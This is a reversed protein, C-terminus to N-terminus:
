FKFKLTLLFLSLSFSTSLFIASLFAPQLGFTFSSFISTVAFTHGCEMLISQQRTNHDTSETSYFIQLLLFYNLNPLKKINYQELNQFRTLTPLLSQTQIFKIPTNILMLCQQIGLPFFFVYFCFCWRFVNSKKLSWAYPLSSILDFIIM